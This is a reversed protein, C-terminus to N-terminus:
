ACLRELATVLREVVTVLRDLRNELLAERQRNAIHRLVDTDQPTGASREIKLARV